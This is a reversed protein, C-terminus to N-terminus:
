LAVEMNQESPSKDGCTARTTHFTNWAARRAAQHEHKATKVSDSYTRWASRISDRRSKGSLDWSAKLADKRVTLATRVKGSFTDLGNIIATDRVEIAAKICETNVTREVPPVPSLAFAPASTFLFSLLVISSSIFKM